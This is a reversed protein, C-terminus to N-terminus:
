ENDVAKKNIRNQELENALRISELREEDIDEDAQAVEICKYCYPMDKQKDKKTYEAEESMPILDGCGECNWSDFFFGHDYQGKLMTPNGGYQNIISERQQHSM